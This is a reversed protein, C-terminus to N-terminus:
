KRRRLIFALGALGILATSSPEPVANATATIPGGSGSFTFLTDMNGTTVVVGNVVLNGAGNNLTVQEDFEARTALTLQAGTVMNIIVSGGGGQSNIPDGTGLFEMSSTGDISVTAGLSLFQTSISSGNNVNIISSGGSVMAIGESGVIDITGNNLLISDFETFGGTLVSAGASVTLTSGAGGGVLNFGGTSGLTKGNTVTLSDGSKMIFNGTGYNNPTATGGDSIIVLGGTDATIAAGPNITNAAPTSNTDDLWNSEAYMTNNVGVWTLAAQATMTVATSVLM